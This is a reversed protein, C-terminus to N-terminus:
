RSLKCGSETARALVDLVQDGASLDRTDLETAEPSDGAGCDVGQELLGVIRSGGQRRVVGGSPPASLM